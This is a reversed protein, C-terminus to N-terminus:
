KISSLLEIIKCMETDGYRQDIPVCIMHEYMYQMVQDECKVQSPKRWIIPCYVRKKSLCSQFLERDKVYVPFYLPVSDGLPIDIVTKYQELEKVADLLTEYNHKRKEVIKEKDCSFIIQRSLSSIKEIVDNKEILKHLMEYKERFLKKKDETEDLFYSEKLKFASLAISDIEKDEDEILIDKLTKKSILAGGDPIALFKRFSAVYYDACQVRHRSFLSQTIDEVIIAGNNKCYEICIEDEITNFGFYSHVLVVSPRDKDYIKKFFDNNITLNINLNYFCVEWGEEVFPKIVTECTYAPLMVKKPYDSLNRCLTKIANRGSKLYVKQYDESSWFFMQEDENSSISYEWFDSGIESLM